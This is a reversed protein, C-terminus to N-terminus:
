QTCQIPVRKNKLIYQLYLRKVLSHTLLFLPGEPGRNRQGDPKKQELIDGGSADARQGRRLAQNHGRM